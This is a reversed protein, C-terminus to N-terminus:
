NGDPPSTTLHHVEIRKPYLSERSRLKGPFVVFQNTIISPPYVDQEIHPIGFGLVGLGDNSETISNEGTQFSKSM